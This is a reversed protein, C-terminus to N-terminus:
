KRITHGKIKTLIRIGCTYQTPFLVIQSPSFPTFHATGPASHICSPLRKHPKALRCAHSFSDTVAHPPSSLLHGQVCPQALARACLGTLPSTCRTHTRTTHAHAHAHTYTHTCTHNCTHNTSSTNLCHTNTPIRTQFRTTGTRPM